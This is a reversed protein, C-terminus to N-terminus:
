SALTTPTVPLRFSIVDLLRLAEEANGNGGRARHEVSRSQEAVESELVNRTAVTWGGGASRTGSTVHSQHAAPSSPRIYERVRRTMDSTRDRLPLGPWHGADYGATCAIRKKVVDPSFSSATHDLWKGLLLCAIVEIARAKLM